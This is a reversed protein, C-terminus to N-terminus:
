PDLYSRARADAGPVIQPDGSENQVVDGLLVAHDNGQIRFRHVTRPVTGAGVGVERRLRHAPLVTDGLDLLCDVLQALLMESVDLRVIWTSPPVVLASQGPLALGAADVVEAGSHGIAVDANANGAADGLILLAVQLVPPGAAVTIGIGDAVGQDAGAHEIFLLAQSRTLSWVPCACVQIFM